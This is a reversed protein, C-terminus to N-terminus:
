TKIVLRFYKWSFFFFFYYWFFVAISVIVAVDSCVLDM